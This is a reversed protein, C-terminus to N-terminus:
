IQPSSFLGTPSRAHYPFKYIILNYQEKLLLRKAVSRLHDTDKNCLLLLWILSMLTGYMKYKKM